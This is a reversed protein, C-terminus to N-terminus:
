CRSKLYKEECEDKIRATVFFDMWNHIPHIEEIM